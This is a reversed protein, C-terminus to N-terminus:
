GARRRREGRRGPRLARVTDAEPVAPRLATSSILMARAMGQAMVPDHLNILGGYVDYTMQLSTHGIMESPAPASYGSPWPQGGTRRPLTIGEPLTRDVQTM